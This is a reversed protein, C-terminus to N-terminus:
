ALYKHKITLHFPSYLFINKSTKTTYGKIALYYNHELFTSNVNTLVTLPGYVVNLSVDGAVTRTDIAYEVSPNTKSILVFTTFDIESDIQLKTNVNFELFSNQFINSNDFVNISSSDSIISSINEYESYSTGGPGNVYSLDCVFTNVVNPTLNTASFDLINVFSLVEGHLKSLANENISDQIVTPNNGTITLEGNLSLDGHISIGNSTNAIFLDSRNGSDIGNGIVFINSIDGSGVNYKGSVHMYDNYAITGQGEAHSYDGSADTALGEAHSFAGSATVDSGQEFSAELTNGVLVRRNIPLESLVERPIITSSSQVMRYESIFTLKLIMNVNDDNLSGKDPMIKVNLVGFGGGAPLRNTSSDITIEIDDTNSIDDGSTEEKNTYWYVPRLSGVKKFITNQYHVVVVTNEQSDAEVYNLEAHISLTRHNTFLDFQYSLDIGEDSADVNNFINTSIQTGADINKITDTYDTNDILLTQVDISNASIDGTVSLDGDIDLNGVILGGSTDLKNAIASTNTAINAANTSIDATNTAINAANTGIDTTNTNINATNTAINNSNDTIANTNQTVIGSLTGFDSEFQAIIPVLNDDLQKIYLDNAGIIGSVDLITNACVDAFPVGVLVNGVNYAINNGSKDWNSGVMNNASIDGSVVLDGSITTGAINAVFIDNVNISNTDIITTGTGVVLSGDITVDGSFSADAGTLLGNISM